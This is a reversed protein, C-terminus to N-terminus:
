SLDEWILVREKAVPHPINPVALFSLLSCPLALAARGMRVCDRQRVTTVIPAVRWRQGGGSSSADTSSSACLHPANSGVGAGSSSRAM